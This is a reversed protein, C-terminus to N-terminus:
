SKWINVLQKWVMEMSYHASVKQRANVSIQMALNDNEMLNVIAERLQNVNRPEVCIGCPNGYDIDLMEPIAGVPTTVIPCGCAMGEIIVNPFGESYTPLVFLHCSLMEKIVQKFSINGTFHLWADADDGALDTLCKKITEDPIHGIIELTIGELRKCADVLEFVGKEKVVHGVFIIKKPIRQIGINEEIIQRVSDALPNPLYAVKLFGFDLLARYSRRDMVVINDVMKLLRVFMRNEYNSAKLVEPIRGFHCHVITKMGKKQAYRVIVLDKLLSVSASTCVHVVDFNEKNTVKKLLRYISFYNFIGNYVRHLMSYTGFSPKFKPNHLLRLELEEVHEKYYTLIHDTWKAIGGNLHEGIPSVLLVKM